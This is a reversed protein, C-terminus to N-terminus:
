GGPGLVVIFGHIPNQVDVYMDTVKLRVPAGPQPAGKDAKYKEVADRAAARFGADNDETANSYGEWKDKAM